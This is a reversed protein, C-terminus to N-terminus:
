TCKSGDLKVPDPVPIVRTYVSHRGGGPTGAGDPIGTPTCELLGADM